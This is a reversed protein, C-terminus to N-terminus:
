AAGVEAVAGAFIWHRHFIAEMDLAFIEPDNYFRAPLSHNPQRTKLAQALENRISM